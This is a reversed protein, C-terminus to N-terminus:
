AGFRHGSAMSVNLLRSRSAIADRIQQAIQAPREVVDPWTFYLIQWGLNSLANHRQQDRQWVETMLHPNAGLVEIGLLILPYAFDIRFSRTGEQVRYQFEPVPLRFASTVNRDFRRELESETPAQGQKRLELLRM